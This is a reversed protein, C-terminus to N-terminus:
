LTLIDLLTMGQSEALEGLERITMTQINITERKLTTGGIRICKRYPLPYQM